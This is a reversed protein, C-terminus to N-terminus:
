AYQMADEPAQQKALAEELRKASKEEKEAAAKVAAKQMRVLRGLYGAIKNRMKKSPMTNKLIKKNHDFSENFHDQEILLHRATRKVLLSKIRGM